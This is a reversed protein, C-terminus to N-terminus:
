SLPAFEFTLLAGPSAPNESLFSGFTSFLDNTM